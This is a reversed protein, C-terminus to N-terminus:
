GATGRVQSGSILPASPIRHLAELHQLMGTLEQLKAQCESLEASPCPALGTLSPACPVRGAGCVGEPGREGASCRELGESDKLWANVKDRSSALTSLAPASGSPLMRTWQGQLLPVSPM